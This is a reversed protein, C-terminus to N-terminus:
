ARQGRIRNITSTCTASLESAETELPKTLSAAVSCEDRLLELWLLSKDAEQIAGGLKSVLEADSRASSAECVHAAVSTGARLLQTALVIVEEQTKPLAVYFRVVSAAFQKTRIRFAEPLQSM